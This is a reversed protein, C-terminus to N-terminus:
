LQCAPLYGLRDRSNYKLCLYCPTSFVNFKLHIIRSSLFRTYITMRKPIPNESFNLHKSNFISMNICSGLILHKNSPAHTHSSGRM